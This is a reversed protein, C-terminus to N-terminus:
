ARLLGKAWLVAIPSSSFVVNEIVSASSTRNLPSTEFLFDRGTDDNEDLTMTKTWVVPQGFRRPAASPSKSSGIRPSSTAGCAPMSFVRFSRVTVPRKPCLIENLSPRRGRSCPSLSSLALHAAEPRHPLHSPSCQTTGGREGVCPRSSRNPRSTDSLCYSRVM